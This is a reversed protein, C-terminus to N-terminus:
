WGLARLWRAVTHSVEILWYSIRGAALVLVMLFKEVIIRM